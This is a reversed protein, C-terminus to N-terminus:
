SLSPCLKGNHLPLAVSVQRVLELLHKRGFGQGAGAGDDRAAFIGGFQVGFHEAIQDCRVLLNTSSNTAHQRVASRRRDSPGLASSCASFTLLSEPVCTSSKLHSVYQEDSFSLTEGRRNSFTHLDDPRRRGRYKRRAFRGLQEGLPGDDRFDVSETHDPNM